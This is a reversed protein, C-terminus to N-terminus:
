MYTDYIILRQTYLLTILSLRPILYCAIDYIGRTYQVKGGREREGWYVYVPELIDVKVIILQVYYGM